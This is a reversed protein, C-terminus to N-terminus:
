HLFYECGHRLIWIGVGGHCPVGVLPFLVPVTQVKFGALAAM